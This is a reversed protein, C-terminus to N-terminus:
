FKRTVLNPVYSCPLDRSRHSSQFVVRDGAALTVEAPVVVTTQANNPMRIVARRNAVYKPDISGGVQAETRALTATADQAELFSVVVGEGDRPSSGLKIPCASGAQGALAGAATAPAVAAAVSPTLRDADFVPGGNDTLFVVHRGPSVYLHHSLYFDAGLLMDHARVQDNGFRIKTRKIHENGLALEDFTGIWLPIVRGGVPTITGAGVVNPSDPKVGARSAAQMSLNSYGGGTDFMARMKQGNVTVAVVTRTDGPADPALMPLMAAAGNAWYALDANAPCHDPEVIRMLGHGLDLETDYKSFFNQGLVGAADVALPLPTVLFDAAGARLDGFAFQEVRVSQASQEGGGGRVKLGPSTQPHLGLASAAEPTLISTYAGTDIMLRVDHGNITAHVLPRLREMTVPLTVLVNLRCPTPEAARGPRPWASLFALVTLLLLGRATSYIGSSSCLASWRRWKSLTAMRDGARAVLAGVFVM